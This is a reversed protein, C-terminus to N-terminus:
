SGANAYSAMLMRGDLKGGQETGDNKSTATELTQTIDQSTSEWKGVIVEKDCHQANREEEEL